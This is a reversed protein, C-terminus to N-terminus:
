TPEGEEEVDHGVDWDTGGAVACAFGSSDVSLITWTEGNPAAFVVILTREDVLGTQLITEHRDKKLNARMDEFPGCPPKQALAPPATLMAAALLAARFVTM